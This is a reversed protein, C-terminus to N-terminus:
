FEGVVHGNPAWRLCLRLTAHTAKMPAKFIGSFDVGVMLLKPIMGHIFLVLLFELGKM